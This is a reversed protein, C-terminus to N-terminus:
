DIVQKKDRPFGVILYGVTTPADDKLMERVVLQVIYEAPIVNGKIM